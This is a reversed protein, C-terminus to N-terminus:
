ALAQPVAEELLVSRGESWVREHAAAELAARTQAAIREAYRLMPDLSVGFLEGTAEVAGLLRTAQKPQGVALAV